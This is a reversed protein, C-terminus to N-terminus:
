RRDKGYISEKISWLEGIQISKTMYLDILVFIVLIWFSIGIYIELMSMLKVLSVLISILFIDIMSWPLIKALLILLNEVFNQSSKLKLLLFLIIYILFVMLPFIFVLYIVFLAVIYYQSYILREVMSLITITQEHGLIDVKILPFINLLVFLILGTISLALGREVLRDDRHYLIHECGSCIAKSGDDISVKQHLKHCKHCIILTDLKDSNINEEKM